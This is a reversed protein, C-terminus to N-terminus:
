TFFYEGYQERGIGLASAWEDIDTQSFETKGRMKLSVSQNSLGIKTAFKSQSGYKEVIRGRLKNYTFPTTAGM